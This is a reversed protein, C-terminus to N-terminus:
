IVVYRIITFYEIKHSQCVTTILTNYKTVIEILCLLFSQKLRDSTENVVPSTRDHTEYVHRKQGVPSIATFHVRDRDHEEDVYGDDAEDHQEVATTGAHSETHDIQQSVRGEHNPESVEIAGQQEARVVHHENRQQAVVDDALEHLGLM